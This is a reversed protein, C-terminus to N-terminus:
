ANYVTSEQMVLSRIMGTLDDDRYPKGLYHIGPHKSFLHNQLTTTATKPFGIHIFTNSM